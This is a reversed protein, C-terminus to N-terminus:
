RRSLANEPDLLTLRAGDGDGSADHWRWLVLNVGGRHQASPVLAGEAGAAILREAVPWTPPVDHYVRYILRWENWLTGQSVGVAELTVPDTLDAIASAEVDFGVLTGPRVIDQCAELIATDYSQGLYLAPTGPANWRGGTVHSGSAFPERHWRVHLMRWYRNALPKFM